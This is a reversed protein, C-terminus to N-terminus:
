LSHVLNSCSCLIKKLLWSCIFSSIMELHLQMTGEMKKDGRQYLQM